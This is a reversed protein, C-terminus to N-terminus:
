ALGNAISVVEFEAESGDLSVRAKDGVQMGMLRAAFPARHNYVSREVDSDFSSLFTM